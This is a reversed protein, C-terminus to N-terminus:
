GSSTMNFHDIVVHVDDGYVIFPGIGRLDMAEITGQASLRKITFGLSEAFGVMESEDKKAFQIMRYDTGVSIASPYQQELYDSFGQNTVFSYGENINSM